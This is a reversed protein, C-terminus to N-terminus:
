ELRQSPSSVFLLHEVASWDLVRQHLPWFRAVRRCQGFDRLVAGMWLGSVFTLFPLTRLTGTLLFVVGLVIAFTCAMMGWSPLYRIVLGFLTPCTYRYKLYFKLAQQEHTTLAALDQADASEYPNVAQEGHM